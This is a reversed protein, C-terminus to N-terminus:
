VHSVARLIRLLFEDTIDEHVEINLHGANIVAKSPVSPISTKLQCFDPQNQVSSMANNQAIVLETGLEVRFKRQWRYFTKPDINHAAMWENKKMGSNNCEQIISKWKEQRMAHTIKDM